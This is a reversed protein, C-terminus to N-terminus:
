CAGPVARHRSWRRNRAHAAELAPERKLTSVGGGPDVVNALIKTVAFNIEAIALGLVVPLALLVV